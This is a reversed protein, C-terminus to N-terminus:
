VSVGELEIYIDIVGDEELLNSKFLEDETLDFSSEEFYSESTNDDFFLTVKFSLTHSDTNEFGGEWLYQQQNAISM